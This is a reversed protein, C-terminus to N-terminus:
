ECCYAMETLAVNQGVCIRPGGHFPTYTWPKPTWHEWREPSFVSPHAFTPSTPPYLDEREHMALTLITVTDGKLLTIDAEGPAGPVTTTEMAQRMNMPVAPHLRLTEDLIHRLFTLDKLTEYSPRGHPGLVHLVQSRLRAWAQPANCLEYIAWSMTAATTDRGALLVSMIQDRIEKPNKTFQAISHLFTFDQDSKSLDELETQPLAVARAILPEIFEEM